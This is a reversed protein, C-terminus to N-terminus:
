KLPAKWFSQFLAFLSATEAKQVKGSFHKNLHRSFNRHLKNRTFNCVEELLRLM